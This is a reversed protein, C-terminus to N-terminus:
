APKRFYLCGFGVGNGGCGLGGGVGATHEGGDATTYAVVGATLTSILAAHRPLVTFSGLAGPLTVAKVEGQFVIDETSIIRLTM